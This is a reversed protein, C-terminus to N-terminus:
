PTGEKEVRCTLPTAPPLAELPTGRLRAVIAIGDAMAEACRLPLTFVGRETELRLRMGENLGRRAAEAASLLIYPAPTVPSLVPSYSSLLESGYLSEVAYLTLENTVAAPTPEPATATFPHAPLREGEDGAKLRLLAQLEPEEACLTQRLPAIELPLGALEALIAWSPRPTAGPTELAFSRPPHPPAAEDRLPLGSAFVAETLQLRGESNVYSAATEAPVTTPLLTEARRATATPFADLVTLRELRSLAAQLRPSDPTDGVLDAEVCVLHKIQGDLLATLLADSDPGDDALWGCGGSNAANLLLHGGWTPNARLTDFLATAGTPGLLDGGGILVPSKAKQLRLVLGALLTEEQRSLGDTKEGRLLAFLSIFREPTLPLHTTKCPLEVPRPDVIFVEAEKRAAQRLALALMPAEALPDAGVVVIADCTTIEALSRQQEGLGAALRAIKDRQPQPEFIKWPTGLQQGLRRLLLTTEFSARGSTLLAVSEPGHEAVCQEIEAKLAALAASWEQVGNPRRIQRLRQPTNAHGYGFRGRDCIFFGHGARNVGARVRQLERYRAGPIVSCGLACHPCVSPAEQLDWYRSTFRYPKNTFVGTPCADILNGAFPSELQGDRVRGFFLRQRSGMVGFDSGGCYDRYTRVCRYCQICRNMEQSIFPGLEQNKWTRKPGRYRRLSHGGAITMEQLQCEGGEDCVPCDHPHNMMAWEIVHQRLEIAAPDSSSVVMGDKAEVMCAMQVGKVPGDLFTMACLRCSGVARLAEHYCFHPITIGLQQAAELVNSGEPVTVSQNDITLTPM